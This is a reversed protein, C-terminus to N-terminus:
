AAVVKGYGKALLLAAAEIEDEVESLCRGAIGSLPVAVYLRRLPRRSSFGWRRRYARENHIDGSARNRVFPAMERRSLFIGLLKASRDDEEGDIECLAYGDFHFRVSM